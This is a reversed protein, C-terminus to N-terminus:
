IPNTGVRAFQGDMIMLKFVGERAFEFGDVFEFSTSTACFESSRTKYIQGGKTIIHIDTKEGENGESLGYDYSLGGLDTLIYRPHMADRPLLNFSKWRIFKLGCFQPASLMGTRHMEKLKGSFFEETSDKEFHYEM